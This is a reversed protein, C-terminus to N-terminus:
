ASPVNPAVCPKGGRSVSWLQVFDSPMLPRLFVALCAREQTGGLLLANPVAPLHIRLIRNWLAAMAFPDGAPEHDLDILIEMRGSLAACERELFSAKGEFAGGEEGVSKRRAAHQSWEPLPPRIGHHIEKELRGFGEPMTLSLYEMRSWTEECALPLLDWHNEWGKLPGNGLVLFPYQRGMADSSDKVVGLVLSEKGFGRAWFRWSCFASVPRNEKPDLTRYGNKVWEAFGDAFPSLHGLRVYDRSVPHKGAAAWWWHRASEVSELM